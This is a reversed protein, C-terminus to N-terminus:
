LLQTHINTHTHTWGNCHGNGKNHTNLKDKREIAEKVQDYYGIACASHLDLLVPEVTPDEYITRIVFILLWHINTCAHVVLTICNRLKYLIIVCYYLLVVGLSRYPFNCAIHLYCYNSHSGLLSHM